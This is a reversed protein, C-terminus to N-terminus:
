EAHSEKEAEGITAFLNLVRALERAIGPPLVIVGLTGRTEEQMRLRCICYVVEGVTGVNGYKEIELPTKCLPCLAQNQYTMKM